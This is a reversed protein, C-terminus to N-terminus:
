AGALVEHGDHMNKRCGVSLLCVDFELLEAVRVRRREHYVRVELRNELRQIASDLLSQEMLLV